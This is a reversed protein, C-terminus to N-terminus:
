QRKQSKYFTDVLNITVDATITLVLTDLPLMQLTTLWEIIDVLIIFLIAKWSKKLASLLRSAM